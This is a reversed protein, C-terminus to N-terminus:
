RCCLTPLYIRSVANLFSARIWVERRLTDARRFGSAWASRRADDDGRGPDQLDVVDV